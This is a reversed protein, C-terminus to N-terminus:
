TLSRPGSFEGYPDVHRDWYASALQERLLRTQEFGMLSGARVVLMIMAAAAALSMRAMHIRTRQWRNLHPRMILLRRAASSARAARRLMRLARANARGNLDAPASQTRLLTLSAHVQNVRRVQTACTPCNMVHAALRAPLPGGRSAWDKLDARDCRPAAGADPPQVPPIGTSSVHEHTRSM